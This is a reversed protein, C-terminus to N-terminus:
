LQPWTVRSTHMPCESACRTQIEALHARRCNGKYKSFHEVSVRVRQQDDEDFRRGCYVFFNQQVVCQAERSM